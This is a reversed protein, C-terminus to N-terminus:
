LPASKEAKAAKDESAESKAPEPAKSPESAPKPAPSAPKPEKSPLPAKPAQSGGAAEAKKKAEGDAAEKEARQQIDVAGKDPTEHTPATPRPTATGPAAGKIEAAKDPGEFGGPTAGTPGNGVASAIAQAPSGEIGANTATAPDNNIAGPVDATLNVGSTKPANHTGQEANIGPVQDAPLRAFPNTMGGTPFEPAPAPTDGFGITVPKTIDQIRITLAPGESSDASKFRSHTERPLVAALNEMVKDRKEASDFVLHLTANPKITLSKM